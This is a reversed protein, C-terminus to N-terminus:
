GKVAGAAIGRIYYRQLSLFLLLVPMLTIVSAAMMLETDQVHERSLNALGVPLTYKANDTLVVLPWMFDNWASMFVFIALTVLVPTALPLIISWYIRWESAGDVRAADLLEDPISLMYQRVLFIGFVTAMSPLIVAAFSNVLHAQRMMIFLPLMAVQPPIFLGLLLLRFLRERGRFQLKAFAYGAMSNIVLSSLTILASVLVSNRLDLAVDLRTFLQRYQALTAPHPLLPPPFTTAAGTPMFSASVMWALPAVAVAAMGILVLHLGVGGVSTRISQAGPWRSM